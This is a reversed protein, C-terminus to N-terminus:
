REEAHGTLRGRMAALDGVAFGTCVPACTSESTRIWAGRLRSGARNATMRRTTPSSSSSIPSIQSLVSEIGADGSRRAAM